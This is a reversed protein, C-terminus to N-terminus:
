IKLNFSPQQLQKKKINFNLSVYANQLVQWSNQSNSLPLLLM